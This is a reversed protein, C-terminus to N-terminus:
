ENITIDKELFYLLRSALENKNITALNQVSLALGIDEIPFCIRGLDYLVWLCAILNQLDELIGDPNKLSNKLDKLMEETSQLSLREYCEEDTIKSGSRSKADEVLKRFDDSNIDIDKLIMM